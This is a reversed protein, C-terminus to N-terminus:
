WVSGIFSDCTCWADGINVRPLERTPKEPPPWSPVREAAARMSTAQRLFRLRRERSAGRQGPPWDIVARRRLMAYPGKRLQLQGM